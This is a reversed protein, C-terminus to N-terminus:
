FKKMRAAKEYRCIKKIDPCDEHIDSVGTRTKIVLREEALYITYPFARGKTEYLYSAKFIAPFTLAAFLLLAIVIM